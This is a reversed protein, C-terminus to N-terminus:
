RFSASLSALQGARAAPALSATLVTTTASTDSVPVGTPAAPATTQPATLPATPTTSAAVTPVDHHPHMMKMTKPVTFILLAVFFLGGGIAIKKQKAAKAAAPNAHKRAM